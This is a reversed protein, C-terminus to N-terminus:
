AVNASLVAVSEPSAADATPLALSTSAVTLTGLSWVTEYTVASAVLQLTVTEGPRLTHAVMEMPISVTHEQGDLIVPVPTVQNGLVIGTTDDVLQAFVHRATGTGSYTVTLEPAGVIYRSTTAAPVVLNVANIAKAGGITLVGLLPGSGGIFPLLPLHGGTSSSAVIPTGPSIPYVNSSFYQGHQDVWEFQPGTSVSEGKVYRDLWDLTRQEILAGDRLDFLNNVCVGHGGCFWLVKTPVGNAILAKANDDAEQLTYISDVTGQFLLTPATINNLLDRPGGPGREALLAQDTQTLMGTVVGYIVAPLIRPNAEAGERVLASALITAWSSKFAESKYLSSNLTNWAITPVIADVRHDIAATVLQIGGGYSGGVMGILPDDLDGPYDPQVEPQTALWSIIASVDRGEFDPSDVELVGGSSYEGRPDWTVVNYGARRLTAISVVGVTDTIFDELLAGDLNTAGPLAFGPGVLVTPAKQEAQLGLAPMFHTYIQTDDFSIVNVDRPLPSGAPLGVQVPYGTLPHVLDSIIPIQHIAAVIPTAFVPGVIPLQQLWALPATQPIAVIPTPQDVAVSEATPSNTVPNAAANLTSTRGFSERRAAALLTWMALPEVPAAPANGAFLSVFSSLVSSIAVAMSNVSNVPNQSAAATPVALRQWVTAPANLEPTTLATGSLLTVASTPVANAHIGRADVPSAAVIPDSRAAPTQADTLDTTPTSGAAPRTTSALSGCPSAPKSRNGQKSPTSNQSDATHPHSVTESAVTTPSSTQPALSGRAKPRSTRGSDSALVNPPPQSNTETSTSGANSPSTSPGTHLDAQKSSMSSTSTSISPAGDNSPSSSTSSSNSGSPASPDASAVGYGSVVAASIGLAAAVGGVRGVCVQSRM